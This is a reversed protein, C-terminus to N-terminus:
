AAKLQTFNLRFISLVNQILRALYLTQARVAENQLRQATGLYNDLDVKGIKDIADNLTYNNDYKWM